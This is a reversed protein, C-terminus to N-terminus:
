LISFYIFTVQYTFPLYAAKLHSEYNSKPYIITNYQFTFPYSFDVVQNRDESIATSSLVM